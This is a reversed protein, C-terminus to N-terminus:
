GRVVSGLGLVTGMFAAAQVIQSTPPMRRVQLMSSVVVGGAGLMAGTCASAMMKRLSWGMGSTAPQPGAKCSCAICYQSWIGSRHRGTHTLRYFLFCVMRKSSQESSHGEPDRGPDKTLASQWANIYTGRSDIKVKVQVSVKQFKLSVCLISRMERCSARPIQVAAPVSSLGLHNPLLQSPLDRLCLV